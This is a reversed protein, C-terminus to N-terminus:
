GRGYGRAAEDHSQRSTPLSSDRVVLGHGVIRREGGAATGAIGALLLEGCAYGLDFANLEVSSLAPTTFAGMDDNNMGIVSVAAPVSLRRDALAKLAGVALSDAVAVIGDIEHGEELLREVTRRGDEATTLGYEVHETAGNTGAVAARFGASRDGAFTHHPDGNLLVLRRRGATLLHATADLAVRHNDNDVTNVGPMPSRGLLVHPFAAEVADALLADDESPNMLLVGDASRGSIIRKLVARAEDLGVPVALEISYGHEGAADYAGRVFRTFFGSSIEGQFGPNLLQLVYSRGSSLSRAARVPHYDLREAVEIIRLRTEPRVRADGNMALSATSVSVGANRAVDRITSM